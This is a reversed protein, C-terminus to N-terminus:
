DSVLDRRRIIEISAAVAALAGAAVAADLRWDPVVAPALSLYHYISARDIGGFARVLSGLMYAIFSWGVAVYVALGAFRPAFTLALMGIALTVLAVPIVNLAASLVTWCDLHLGTAEGALYVV